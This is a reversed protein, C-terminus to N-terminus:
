AELKKSSELQRCEVDESKIFQPKHQYARSMTSPALDEHVGCATIAM